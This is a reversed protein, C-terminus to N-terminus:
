SKNDQQRKKPKKVFNETVSVKQNNLVYEQGVTIVRVKDPLGSVWVGKENDSLLQVPMFIVTNNEDVTRVGIQGEDNLVLIAPSFLHAKTESLPINIDTTIGDRLKANKNDIEVEVRFTRTAQDASASIFSIKGQGEEGTVLKVSPQHEM